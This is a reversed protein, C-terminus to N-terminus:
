LASLVMVTLEQAPKLDTPSCLGGHSNIGTRTEPRDSLLSWWSQLEQTPKLDTPSCLGGHSNIGTHTEPRDALLTFFIRWSLPKWSSCSMLAKILVLCSTLETPVSSPTVKTPKELAGKTEEGKRNSVLSIRRWSLVTRMVAASIRRWSLATRM